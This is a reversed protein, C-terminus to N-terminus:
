NEMDQYETYQKIEQLVSVEKSSVVKSFESRRPFGDLNKPSTDKKM